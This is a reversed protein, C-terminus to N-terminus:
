IKYVKIKHEFAYQFTRYLLILIKKFYQMRLTFLSSQKAKRYQM